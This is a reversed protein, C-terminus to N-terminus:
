RSAAVALHLATLSPSGVASIADNMARYRCQREDTSAALGFYAPECVEDAALKIRSYLRRVGEPSQLNLDAYRVIRTPIATDATVAQAAFPAAVALCTIVIRSHM